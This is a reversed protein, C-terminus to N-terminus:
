TAAASEIQIALYSIFPLSKMERGQFSLFGIGGRWEQKGVTKVERQTTTAWKEEWKNNNSCAVELNVIALM